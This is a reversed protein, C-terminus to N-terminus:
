GGGQEPIRQNGADSRLDGGANVKLFNVDPEPDEGFDYKLHAIVLTAFKGQPPLPRIELGPIQEELWAVM